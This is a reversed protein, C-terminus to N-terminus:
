KNENKFEREFYIKAETMIQKIASSESKIFGEVLPSNFTHFRAEINCRDIVLDILLSPKSSVPSGNVYVCFTYNLRGVPKARYQLPKYGIEGKTFKEIAKSELLEQTTLSHLLELDDKNLNKM